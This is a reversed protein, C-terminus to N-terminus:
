HHLPNPGTPVRRKEVGYRPDIQADSPDPPQLHRQQHNKFFPSFDFKSKALVKRSMSGNQQKKKKQDHHLRHSSSSSSSRDRSAQMIDKNKYIKAKFHDHYEHFLFLLIISLWLLLFLLVHSLKFAM